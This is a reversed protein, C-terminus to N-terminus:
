KRMLMGLLDTVSGLGGSPVQGQPTLKDVVQPLMSALQGLLDSQSAGAGGAAGGGAGGLQNLLGGLVDPPLANKLQDPSIPMNQGTGVWSGVVDGLGSRQMQQVLGGLGGLSSGNSLMGVVANLLDANGGGGTGKNGSLMGGVIDLLSM